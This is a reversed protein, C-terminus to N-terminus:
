GTKRKYYPGELRRVEPDRGPVYSATGSDNDGQTMGLPLSRRSLNCQVRRKLAQRLDATFIGTRCRAAQAAYEAELADAIDADSAAVDGLYAKVEVLTVPYKAGDVVLFSDASAGPPGTTVFVAAHPGVVTPAYDVEFLGVTEPDETITPTVTTGDPKTVTLVATAPSAASGAEDTVAYSLPVSAGLVYTAM